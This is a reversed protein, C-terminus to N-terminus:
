TTIDDDNYFQFLIFDRLAVIQPSDYKLAYRVSFAYLSFRHIRLTEACVNLVSVKTVSKYVRTLM